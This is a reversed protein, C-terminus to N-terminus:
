LEASKKRNVFFWIILIILITGTILVWLFLSIEGKEEEEGLKGLVEVNITKTTSTTFSITKNSLEKASADSFKIAIIYRTGSLANDPIQVKLKVDVGGGSGPLFYETKNDVLKFIGEGEMIETKLITDAEDSSSRLTLIVEKSEGPYMKLISVKGYLCSIGFAGVDLVLLVLVLFVMIVFGTKKNNM